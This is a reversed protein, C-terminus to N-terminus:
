SMPINHENQSPFEAFADSDVVVDFDDYHLDFTALHADSDFRGAIGLDVAFFNVSGDLFLVAGSGVRLWFFCFFNSLKQTGALM